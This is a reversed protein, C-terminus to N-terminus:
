LRSEFGTIGQNQHQDPPANDKKGQHAKKRYKKVPKPDPLFKGIGGLEHEDTKGNNEAEEERAAGEVPKNEIERKKKAKPEQFGGAGYVGNGSAAAEMKEPIQPKIYAQRNQAQKDSQAHGKDQCYGSSVNRL